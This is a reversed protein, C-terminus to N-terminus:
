DDEEEEAQGRKKKGKNKIKKGGVEPKKGARATTVMQM